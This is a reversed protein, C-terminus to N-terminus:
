LSEPKQLANNKIINELSIILFVKENFDNEYEISMNTNDELIKAKIIKM